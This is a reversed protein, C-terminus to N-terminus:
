PKLIPQILATLRDFTVKTPSPKGHAEEGFEILIPEDKNHRKAFSTIKELHIPNLRVDCATTAPKWTDILREIPPYNGNIGDFAQSREVSNGFMIKVNVEYNHGHKGTHQTVALFYNLINDGVHPHRLQKVNIKSIWEVANNPIVIHQENQEESSIMWQAITYRDTAYWAHETLKVGMIIPAVDDKSTHPATAKAATIAEALNYTLTTENM